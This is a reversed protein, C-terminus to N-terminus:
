VSRLAQAIQEAEEGYGAGGTDGHVTDSYWGAANGIAYSGFYGRSDIVQCSMSAALSKLAAVYSDQTSTLGAVGSDFRPTCIIVDGTIQCQTILTTLSAISSAISASTRWDNVMPKIISLDPAYIPIEALRGTQTDSNDALQASTAGSIGGNWCSIERRGSTDDYADIGLITISGAVWALTLAHIGATGAPVTTKIVQITGSSNIQTASGGDVAWSFNRGAAGAPNLKKTV